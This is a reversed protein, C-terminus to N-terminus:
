RMGVVLDVMQAEIRMMGVFGFDSGLHKIKQDFYYDTIKLM